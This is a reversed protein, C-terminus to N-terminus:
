QVTVNFAFNLVGDEEATNIVSLIQDMQEETEAEIIIQKM